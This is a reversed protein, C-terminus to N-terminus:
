NTQWIGESEDADTILKLNIGNKYPGFYRLLIVIPVAAIINVLMQPIISGSLIEYLTLYETGNGSIIQTVFTAIHGFIKYGVTIIMVQIFGLQLKRHFAKAFLVSSIIGAYLLMLMGLGLVASQRDHAGEFSPGAFYDRLLGTILGVVAADKAGYLYGTVIVFVLMFDAVQRGLSFFDSFSVQVSSFLIIYLAYVIIKRALQKKKM